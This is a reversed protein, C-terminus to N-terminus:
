ISQTKQTSSLKKTSSEQSLRSGPSKKEYWLYEKVFQWHGVQIFKQPEPFIFNVVGVKIEHDSIASHSATHTRKIANEATEKNKFTSQQGNRASDSSSNIMLLDM